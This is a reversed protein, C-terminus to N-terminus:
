INVLQEKQYFAFSTYLRFLFWLMVTRKLHPLMVALITLIKLKCIDIIQKSILEVKKYCKDEWFGHKFNFNERWAVIRNPGCVLNYDKMNNQLLIQLKSICLLVVIMILLTCLNSQYVINVNYVASRNNLFKICISMYACTDM